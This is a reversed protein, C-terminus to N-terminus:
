KPQPVVVFVLDHIQRPDAQSNASLIAPPRVVGTQQLYALLEWMFEHYAIILAVRNDNIGILAPIDPSQMAQRMGESVKRSLVLSATYIPDSPAERIIPVALKGDATLVGLGEMQRRVVPDSVSGRKELDDLLPKLMSSSNLPTLLPQVSQMWMISLSWGGYSRSNTGPAERHPYVAWVTGGWFPKDASIEMSPLMHQHDYDDWVVDDLLYSFVISYANDVYGQQTLVTVFNKFDPELSSGIEVAHARLLARLRAMEEPGLVPMETKLQDDQEALLRWNKLLEIQSETFAVGAEKLGKRTTGRRAVFLIQGNNDEKVIEDPGKQQGSCYCILEWDRLDSPPTQATAALSSCVAILPILGFSTKFM